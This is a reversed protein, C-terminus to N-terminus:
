IVVTSLLDSVTQLSSVSIPLPTLGLQKTQPMQIKQEM